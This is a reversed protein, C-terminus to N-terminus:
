QRLFFFLFFGEKVAHLVLCVSNTDPQGSLLLCSVPAPSSPHVSVRPHFQPCILPFDIRQGLHIMEGPFPLKPFSPKPFQHHFLTGLKSPIEGGSCWNPQVKSIKSWFKWKRHEHGAATKSTIWLIDEPTTSHTQPLLRNYRTLWLDYKLFKLFSNLTPPTFFAPTIHTDM